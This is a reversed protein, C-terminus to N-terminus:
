DREECSHGTRVPAGGNRPRWEIGGSHLLATWDERSCLIFAGSLTHCIATLEQGGHIMPIDVTFRSKCYPHM